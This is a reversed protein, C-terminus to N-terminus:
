SPAWTPSSGVRGQPCCIKLKACTKAIGLFADRCDRGTDSRAGGSIKRKLGRGLRGRLGKSKAQTAKEMGSPKGPKIKPRQNLDKLRAIEDAQAAVTRKLEAVENVLAM